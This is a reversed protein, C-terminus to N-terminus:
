KLKEELFRYWISKRGVVRGMQPSGSWDCTLIVDARSEPRFFVNEFGLLKAYPKCAHFTTLTMSFFNNFDKGDREKERGLV